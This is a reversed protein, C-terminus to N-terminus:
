LLNRLSMGFRLDKWGTYYMTGFDLVLNNVANEATVQEGRLEDEILVDPLDQEAYRVHGGVYFQSSIQRGYALGIALENVTFENGLIYGQNRLAPDNGEYPITEVFTGYDMSVFSIGFTGYKGANYAVGGGYHQIDAIWNTVTTSADLGEVFALGAPNSFMDYASGSVSANTGGMAAIRTGVDIKLFTMGAQAYKVPNNQAQTEDALALLLFAALGTTLLKKM